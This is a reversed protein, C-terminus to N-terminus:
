GRSIWQFRAGVTTRTAGRHRKVVGGRSNAVPCALILAATTVVVRDHHTGSREIKQWIQNTGLRERKRWSGYSRVPTVAPWWVTTVAVSCWWMSGGRGGVRRAAAGHAGGGGRRAWLEGRAGGIGFIVVKNCEEVTAGGDNPPEAAVGARTVEM